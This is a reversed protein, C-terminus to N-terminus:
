YPTQMACHRDPPTDCAPQTPTYKGLSTLPSQLAKSWTDVNIPQPRAPSQQRIGHALANLFIAYIAGSTGDMTMEVVHIIKQLFLLADDIGNTQDLMGLIALLHSLEIWTLRSGIM